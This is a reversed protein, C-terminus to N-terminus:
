PSRPLVLIHLWMFLDVGNAGWTLVLGAMIFSSVHQFHMGLPQMFLQPPTLFMHATFLTFYHRHVTRMGASSLLCRPKPKLQLLAFIHFLLWLWENRRTKSVGKPKSTFDQLIDLLNKNKENSTYSRISPYTNIHIYMMPTLMKYFYILMKKLAQKRQYAGLHTDTGFFVLRTWCTCLHVCAHGGGMWFECTSWLLSLSFSFWGNRWLRKGVLGLESDSDHRWFWVCNQTVMRFGHEEQSSFNCRQIYIWCWRAQTRSRRPWAPTLFVSHEIRHFCRFSFYAQSLWIWSAAPVHCLEKCHEDCWASCPAADLEVLFSFNYVSLDYTEWYSHSRRFFRRRQAPLM